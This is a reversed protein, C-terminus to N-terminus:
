SSKVKFGLLTVANLLVGHTGAILSIFIFLLFESLSYYKDYEFIEYVILAIFISFVIATFRLFLLVNTANLLNKNQEWHILHRGFYQGLPNLFAFNLLTLLTLLLYYNGVEQASLVETLIRISVLAIVVQLVKGIGLILIDKKQKTM